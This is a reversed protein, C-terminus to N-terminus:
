ARKRRGGFNKGPMPPERREQFALTEFYENDDPDIASEVRCSQCLAHPNDGDDKMIVCCPFEDLKEGCYDCIEGALSLKNWWDVEYIIENAM